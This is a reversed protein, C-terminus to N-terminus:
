ALHHADVIRGQRLAQLAKRTTRTQPHVEGLIRRRRNFADAYGAEADETRGQRAAIWALEHRTLITDPHNEGFIQLRLDLLRCYDIEADEWNGQRATIWALEHQTALTRQHRHGLVQIRDALVAQFIERAEDLRGQNAIAWGLEHRTILTEPDVVDVSGRLVARYGKEAKAWDQRCAAIWALEHRSRLVDTHEPGLLRLRHQLVDRYLAEAATLNGQDAVAWARYHRVRLVVPHTNGLAVGHELARECLARGAQSAGSLYFARAMQATAEMLLIFHERDVRKPMTELLGLLRPGLLLRYRPWNEPRDFPLSDVAALLDVATPLRPGLLLRLLEKAQHTNQRVHNSKKGLMEAIETSTHDQTILHVVRRQPESLCELVNAVVEGSEWSTLAPDDAALAPEVDVLSVAQLRRRKNEDILQRRAITMAYARPDRVHDWREALKVMAHAVCDEADARSAQHRGMLAQVMPEYKARFFDGLGDPSDQERAVAPTDPTFNEEDPM